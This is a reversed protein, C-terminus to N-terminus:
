DKVIITALDSKTNGKIDTVTYRVINKGKNLDSTNVEIPIASARIPQERKSLDEEHMIQNNIYLRGASIGDTDGAQLMLHLPEGKEVRLQRKGPEAIDRMSENKLRINVYDYNSTPFAKYLSMAAILALGIPLVCKYVIEFLKNAMFFPPM